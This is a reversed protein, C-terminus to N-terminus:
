SPSANHFWPSPTLHRMAYNTCHQCAHATRTTPTTCAHHAHHAHLHLVQLLALVHSLTRHCQGLGRMSANSSKTQTSIAPLYPILTCPVQQKNVKIGAAPMRPYRLYPMCPHPACSPAASPACAQM